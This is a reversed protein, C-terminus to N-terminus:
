SSLDVEAVGDRLVVVGDQNQVSVRYHGEVAVPQLSCTLRDGLFVPRSFRVKLRRLRAPEGGGLEDIVSRQAFAMTCLGHLIVGKLGAAEATAPDLHIPNFDGSAQAYRKAQDPAITWETLVPTGTAEASLAPEARPARERGKQREEIPKPDRIVIGTKVTALHLEHANRIETELEMIEGVSKDVLDVVTSTMHLVDDQRIPAFWRIDEEGHLLKLFRGRDGIFDEDQFLPGLAHAITGIVVSMPPAVGGSERYCPNKDGTADTFAANLEPSLARTRVPQAVGIY